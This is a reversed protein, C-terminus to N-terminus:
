LTTEARPGRRFLCGALASGRWFRSAARWAGGHGCSGTTAAGGFGKPLEVEESGGGTWTLSDQPLARLSVYSNNATAGLVSREYVRYLVKTGELLDKDVRATWGDVAKSRQGLSCCVNQRFTLSAGSWSVAFSDSVIASRRLWGSCSSSCSTHARLSIGRRSIQAPRAAAGFCM